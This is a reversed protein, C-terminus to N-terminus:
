PEERTAEDHSHRRWALACFIIGAVISAGGVLGIPLWAGSGTTPLQDLGPDTPPAPPESPLGCRSGPVVPEAAAADVLVGRLRFGVTGRQGHRRDLAADVGATLRLRLDQGPRLVVGDRLVTCSGNRVGVEITVPPSSQGGTYAVSLSFAAALAADDTHPDILDVRLVADVMSDNKVWIQESRRDGPVVRGMGTFLPLTSGSSFHVGDRSVLLENGAATAPLVSGLLGLLLGTM